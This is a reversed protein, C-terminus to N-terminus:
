ASFCKRNDVKALFLPFSVTQYTKVEPWEMHRDQWLGLLEGRRHPVCVRRWPHWKETFVLRSWVRPESLAATVSLQQAYLLSASLWFSHKHRTSLSAHLNHFFYQKTNHGKTYESWVGVSYPMLDSISSCLSTPTKVYVTKVRLSFVIHTYM